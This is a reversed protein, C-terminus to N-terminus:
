QSREGVARLHQVRIHRLRGSARQMEALEEGPKAVHFATLVCIYLDQLRKGAREAGRRVHSLAYELLSDGVAGFLIVGDGIEGALELTKPGSAAVYIPVKEKLNIWGGTPNLFRIM